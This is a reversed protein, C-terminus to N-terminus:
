IPLLTNRVENQINTAATSKTIKSERWMIQRRRLCLLLRKSMQHGPSMVTASWAQSKNTEEWFWLQQEAMERRDVSLLLLAEPVGHKYYRACVFLQCLSISPRQTARRDCPKERRSETRHRWMSYLVQKSANHNGVEVRNKAKREPRLSPFMCLEFLLTSFYVYIFTYVTYQLQQCM